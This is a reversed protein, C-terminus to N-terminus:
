NESPFFHRSKLLESYVKYPMSAMPTQTFFEFLPHLFILESLASAILGNFGVVQYMLRVVFFYFLAYCRQM